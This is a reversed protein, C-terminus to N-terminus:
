FLTVDLCEVIATREPLLQARRIAGIFQFVPREHVKVVLTERMLLQVGGNGGRLAPWFIQRVFLNDFFKQCQVQFSGFFFGLRRIVSLWLRLPHLALVFKDSL